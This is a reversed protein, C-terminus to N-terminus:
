VGVWIVYIRVRLAAWDQGVLVVDPLLAFIGGKKGRGLV